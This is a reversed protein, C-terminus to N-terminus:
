RSVRIELSHGPITSVCYCSFAASLISECRKEHHSVSCIQPSIRLRKVSGCLFGLFLVRAVAQFAVMTRLVVWDRWNM